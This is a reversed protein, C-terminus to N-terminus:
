FIFANRNLQKESNNDDDQSILFCDKSEFLNVCLDQFGILEMLYFIFYKSFAYVHVIM